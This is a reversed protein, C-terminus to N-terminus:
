RQMDITKSISVSNEPWPLHVGLHPVCIARMGHVGEPGSTEQFVGAIISFYLEGHSTLFARPQWKPAPCVETWSPLKRLYMANYSQCHHCVAKVTINEGLRLIELHIQCLEPHADKCRTALYPGPKLPPLFLNLSRVSASDPEQIRGPLSLESRWWRKTSIKM